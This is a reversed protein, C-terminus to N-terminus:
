ISHSNKLSYIIKNLLNITKNIGSIGAGRHKSQTHNALARQWLAKFNCQDCSYKIQKHDIQKHKTQKHTTSKLLTMNCDYRVGEHKSKNHTVLKSKQSAKYDCQNCYYKTGEHVFQKYRSLHSNLVAKYDCQVCNYKMEEYKCKRHIILSSKKSTM